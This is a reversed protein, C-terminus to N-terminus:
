SGATLSGSWDHTITVPRANVEDHEFNGMQFQTMTSYKKLFEQHREKRKDIAEFTKMLADLLEKAAELPDSSVSDLYERSAESVEEQDQKAVMRIADAFDQRWQRLEKGFKEMLKRTNNALARLSVNDSSGHMHNILTSIYIGFSDAGDGEWHGTEHVNKWYGSSSEALKQYIHGLAGIVQAVSDVRDPRLKAARELLEKFERHQGFHEAIVYMKALFARDSDLVADLDDHVLGHYEDRAADKRERHAKLEDRLKPETEKPPGGPVDKYYDKHDEPLAPTYAGGDSYNKDLYEDSLSPEEDSM